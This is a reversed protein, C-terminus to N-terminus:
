TRFRPWPRCTQSPAYIKLHRMYVSFAMGTIVVAWVARARAPRPSPRTAENSASPREDVDAKVTPVATAARPPRRGSGFRARRVTAWKTQSQESAVHPLFLPVTFPKNM